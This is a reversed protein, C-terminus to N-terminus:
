DRDCSNFIASTERTMFAWYKDGYSWHWWETPYNIFGVSIMANELIKRNIKAVDSINQADLFTAGNTDLPSANFETGM